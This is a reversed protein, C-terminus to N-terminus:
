CSIALIVKKRRRQRRKTVGFGVGVALGAPKERERKRTQRKQNERREPEGKRLRAIVEIESDAEKQPNEEEDQTEEGAFRRGGRGSWASPKERGRGQSGGRGPIMRSFALPHLTHCFGWMPHTFNNIKVVVLTQAPHL